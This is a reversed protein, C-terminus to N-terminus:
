TLDPVRDFSRGFPNGGANQHPPMRRSPDHFLSHFPGRAQEGLEAPHVIRFERL